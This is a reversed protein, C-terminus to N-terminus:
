KPITQSSFSNILLFFGNFFLPRQFWFEVKGDYFYGKGLRDVPIIILSPWIHSCIKTKVLEQCFTNYSLIWCYLKWEEKRIRWILFLIIKMFSRTRRSFCSMIVVRFGIIKNWVLGATMNFYIYQNIYKMEFRKIRKNYM